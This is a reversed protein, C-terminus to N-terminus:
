RARSSGEKSLRSMSVPRRSVRIGVFARLWLPKVAGGEGCGDAATRVRRRIGHLRRPPPRRACRGGATLPTRPVLYDGADLVPDAPSADPPVKLLAPESERWRAAAAVAPSAAAASKPALAGRALSSM